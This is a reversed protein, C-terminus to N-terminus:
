FGAVKILTSQKPILRLTRNEDLLNIDKDIKFKFIYKLIWFMETLGESM